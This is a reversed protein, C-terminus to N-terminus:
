HIEDTLGMETTGDANRVVITNHYWPEGTSPIATFDLWRQSIVRQERNSRQSKEREFFDELREREEENVLEEPAVDEGNQLARRMNKINEIWLKTLRNKEKEEEETFIKEVTEIYVKGAEYNIPFIVRNNKILKGYEDYLQVCNTTHIKNEASRIYIDVAEKSINDPNENNEQVKKAISDCYVKENLLKIKFLQVPSPNMNDALSFISCVSCYLISLYIKNKM